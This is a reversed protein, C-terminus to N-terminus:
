LIVACLVLNAKNLGCKEAALLLLLMRAESQLDHSAQSIVKEM